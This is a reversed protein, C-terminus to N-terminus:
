VHTVERLIIEEVKKYSEEWSTGQYKQSMAEAFENINNKEVVQCLKTALDM